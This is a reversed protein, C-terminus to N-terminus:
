RGAETRYGHMAFFIEGVEGKYQDAMRQTAVQRFAPIARGLHKVMRDAMYLPFPELIGATSCQHKIAQLLMALRHENEAISSSIELRLAPTWGSPRYYVVFLQGLASTVEKSLSELTDRAPAPSLNLHWPEGPQQLPMPKILEGPSLIITLLARDDYHKSWNLKNGLERRVTYKPIGSWLRDTQLATLIAKYALLAEELSNLLRDRLEFSPNQALKNMAQNLYILPTTLSGDLFVVEHPAKHALELEMTMMIARAVTGTDPDHSIPQIVTRHHPREWYRTESPPTLGEVAVGAAAVLDTSLLREIAYSGDVGCTTPIPSYGMDADKKLLNNEELNRRLVQRKRQVDQFSDYLFDGAQESQSLLEDVLAEPLEQFPTENSDPM